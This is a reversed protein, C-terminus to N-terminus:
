KVFKDPGIYIFLASVALLFLGAAFLLLVGAGARSELIADEPNDPNYFVDVVKGEPYRATVRAAHQTSSTSFDALTVRNSLYKVGRVAYEVAVEPKYQYDSRTGHGPESNSSTSREKLIKSSVVVGKASPWRRSARARRVTAIGIVLVAAGGFMGLSTVLRFFARTGVLDLGREFGFWGAFAIGAGLLAFLGGLIMTPLNGPKIGPELVARDPRAPDYYVTTMSNAPHRHVIAQIARLDKANIEVFLVKSGSRQVNGATYEYVVDVGYHYSGGGVIDGSKADDRGSDVKVNSSVITGVTPHWKKSIFGLFLNKLAIVFFWLGVGSFFIGFITLFVGFVRDM